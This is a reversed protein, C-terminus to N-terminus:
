TSSRQRIRTTRCARCMAAPRGCSRTPSTPRTAAAIAWCACRYSRRAAARRRRRRRRQRDNRRDHRVVHTGHWSSDSTGSRRCGCQGAVRGTAWTGAARCANTPRGVPCTRKDCIFDYGTCCTRSEPRCTADRRYRAGRGRRRCRHRREGLRHDRARRGTGTGYHWMQHSPSCRITRCRPRAADVRRRAVTNSTRIPPSPLADAGRSRQARPAAVGQRCAHWRARDRAPADIRLASTGAKGTGAVRLGAVAYPGRRGGAIAPAVGVQTRAASGERYKVIFRPSVSPPTTSPPAPRRHRRRRIRARLRRRDDPELVTRRFKM